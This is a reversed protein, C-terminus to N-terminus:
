DLGMTKKATESAIDSLVKISIDYIPKGMKSLLRRLKLASSDTMQTDRVVDKVASNFEEREDDSLDSEKIVEALNALASVQWPFPRGCEECFSPVPTEGPYRVGRMLYCGRIRHDCHPCTKITKEGCSPCSKMQEKPNFHASNTIQHGNLCVQQLDYDDM